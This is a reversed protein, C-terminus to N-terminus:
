NKLYGRSGWVQYEESFASYHDWLKKVDESAAIEEALVEEWKAEIEALAAPDDRYTERLREPTVDRAELGLRLPGADFWATSAEDIPEPQVRYVVGYKVTSAM